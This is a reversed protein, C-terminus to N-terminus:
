GNKTIIELEDGNNLLFANADDTDLHCEFYADNSIKLHVDGLIGSKEGPVKLSVVDPLQLKEKEERTIHIHRESIICSDVDVQGKPGIITVKAGGVIDGSQRIPPHIGLIRADTLSIEVQTYERIEGLVRVKEIKNKATQITVFSTSAFNHPQNLDFSKELVADHGFLELFDEQKLHVHHNSIGIAVKM